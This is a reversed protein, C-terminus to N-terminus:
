SSMERYYYQYYSSTHLLQSHNGVDCVKGNELVIIMDSNMLMNLVETFFISLLFQHELCVFCGNHLIM